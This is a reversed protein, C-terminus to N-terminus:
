TQRQKLIWAEIEDADFRNQKGVKILGPIENAAILRQLTRRSISLRTMVQQPTALPKADLETLQDSQNTSDRRPQALKQRKRQSRSKALIGGKELAGHLALNHWMQIGFLAM